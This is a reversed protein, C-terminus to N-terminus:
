RPQDGLRAEGARRLAFQVALPGLLELILAPVLVITALNAGFAPYPSGASHTLALAIGSMPLLAISLLGGSGSRIGSLHAFCLVGVSKGVFRAAIYFAAIASGAILGTIQLMAGSAVFLVIFFAQGFRSIDVPLLAHEHDLNRAQVGFTLLSILVSLKLSEAAGVLLVVAALVLVLHLEAQKGLWRALTIAIMSTLSGAFWSGTLIYVPHLVVTLSSANYQSHIWSLLMTVLVFAVVSNIAVLNLARETVQGEARQERAVLLVIAPSSSVGVAAAVAAYLPTIGLWALAGFMCAFSLLSEALAMVALWRDRSLWEFDLRRGLDFLVLGLGVDIFVRMYGLMGADLLNLGSSGLALGILVYGTIRPLNLVRRILEGGLAGAALLVGFLALPNAPLPFQPLFELESM